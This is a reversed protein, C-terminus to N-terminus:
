YRNFRINDNNEWALKRADLVGLSRYHWFTTERTIPDVWYDVPDYFTTILYKLYNEELWIERGNHLLLKEPNKLDGKSSLKLDACYELLRSAHLNMNDFLGSAVTGSFECLQLYAENKYRDAPIINYTKDEIMYAPTNFEDTHRFLSGPM